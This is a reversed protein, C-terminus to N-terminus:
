HCTDSGQDLVSGSVDIFEWKYRTPWLTLRLVGHTKIRKQSGARPVANFNYLGSGGTGVVFERIGRETDVAGDPRLEAFREYSHVHGNLVLDAGGRYLAQWLLPIKRPLQVNAPEASSTFLPRHWTALTCRRPNAALERTMWAAQNELNQHSNAVFIRWGGYDLTYYGRGRHGARGSDVGVGNFYDYYATAAPDLNLEHNGITPYTRSKFAGWSRNYCEHEAATGSQGANDGLPIVLARPFREVLAATAKARNAPNTCNAHMDGAVVLVVPDTASATVAMDPSRVAGSGNPATPEDRCGPMAVLAVLVILSRTHM